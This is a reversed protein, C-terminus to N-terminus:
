AIFEKAFLEDLDRFVEIEKESCYRKWDSFESWLSLFVPFFKFKLAVEMDLKSDGILAVEGRVNGRRLERSVIEEKGCPSGFVGGDFIETLGRQGFLKRLEVEDGGSVILFRTSPLELRLKQLGSSIECSLLGQEVRKGYAKLLSNFIRSKESESKKELERKIIEDLFYRFKAYRSVGGNRQHYEVLSHAPEVGWSRAAYFFAESKINNSNLVVGDCDFIVTQCRKLM